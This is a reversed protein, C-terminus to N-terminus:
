YSADGPADDKLGWALTCMVQFCNFATIFSDATFRVCRPSIREVGPVLCCIDAEETNMFNLEMVIPRTALLPKFREVNEMARYASSKLERCVVAPHLTKASFRTIGYKTVVTEVNGLLEKAERATAEDGEVLIVPVECEGARYANIGTEGISIGNVRLDYLHHTWTHNLVGEPTGARAHMGLLMVGSFSNDIDQLTGGPRPNGRILLAREDLLSPIINRSPPHTDAVYVVECGAEFAGEIAANVELTALERREPDIDRGRMQSPSVMTSIGEMDVSIYLKKM